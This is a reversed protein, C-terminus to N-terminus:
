KPPPLVIGRLTAQKMLEKQLAAFTGQGSNVTKKSSGHAVSPKTGDLKIAKEPRTVIFFPTLIKSLEEDSLEQWEKPGLGLLEEFTM